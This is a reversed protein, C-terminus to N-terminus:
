QPRVQGVMAETVVGFANGWSNRVFTSISAIERNNLLPAFAPMGHAPSGQLIQNIIGSARTIMTSTTLTPGAGGQGEAGHCPQCNRQYNRAGETM